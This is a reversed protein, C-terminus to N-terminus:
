HVEITITATGRFKGPELVGGVLNVPYANMRTSGRGSNNINITGNIFPINNQGATDDVIRIGVDPVNDSSRRRGILVYQSAVDMGEIVMDMNNKILSTDGCDYIINFEVPRYGEPMQDKTTFRSANVAGLNVQIVDGQNIKCDQPVTIRGQVHLEAIPELVNRGPVTSSDSWGAEVSAIHTDPIILEGLFPKTVYLTITTNAGVTSPAARQDQPDISCVSGKEDRTSYAVGEEKMVRINLPTVATHGPIDNVETKIDLHDNLRYYGSLQGINPLGSTVFYYLNVRKGADCSCDIQYPNGSLQSPFQQTSGTVNYEKTWDSTLDMNFLGSATCGGTIASAPAAILLSFILGTGAISTRYKM